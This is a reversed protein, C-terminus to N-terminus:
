SRFYIDLFRRIRRYMADQLALDITRPFGAQMLVDRSVGNSALHQEAEQRNVARQRETDNITCVVSAAGFQFVTQARSRSHSVYCHVPSDLLIGKKFLQYVKGNVWLERHIGPYKTTDPPIEKWYHV